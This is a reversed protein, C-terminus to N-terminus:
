PRLRPAPVQFYVCLSQLVRRQDEESLRGLEDMMHFLLGQATPEEDRDKTKDESM